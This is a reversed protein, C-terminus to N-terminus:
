DARRGPPTRAWRAGRLPRALGLRMMTWLASAAERVNIKSRGRKRNVFTIPIEAFQCGAAQLHWLLEELFAYGHARVAAFDLQRLQRTRYCRFAGSCDHCRLGLLWRAYLNVARSTLHRWAPWGEISGGPVYRSGIAVDVPEGRPTEMGALLRPIDRPHHSFDADMNIVYDYGQAVAYQLAATTATGLGLKGSRHLCRVRQDVASRADCWRGTGDPSNDDVVLLDAAPVFRFVEDVLEPLSDIENYTAVAVLLRVAM